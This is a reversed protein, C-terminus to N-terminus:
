VRIGMVVAGKTSFLAAEQSGGPVWYARERICPKDGPPRAFVEGATPMDLGVITKKKSKKRNLQAQLSLKYNPDWQM